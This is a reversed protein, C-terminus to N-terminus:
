LNKCCHRSGGLTGDHRVGNKLLCKKPILPVLEKLGDLAHTIRRLIPEGKRIIDVVHRPFPPMFHNWGNYVLRIKFDQIALKKDEPIYYEETFTYYPTSTGSTHETPHILLIPEDLLLRAATVYFFIAAKM